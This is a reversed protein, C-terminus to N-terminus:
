SPAGPNVIYMALMEAVLAPRAEGEIEVTAEQTVLIRGPDKVTVDLVKAHLRVRSDVKVPQLFRVKNLGYNLAMVLGEPVLADEAMLHPILSLSLFGHAVTAGLPTQAAREPDVHIFQEDGTAQAFQDIRDQDIRLWASPPRSQGAQALLEDRSVVTPM